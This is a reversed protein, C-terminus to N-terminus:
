KTIGACNSFVRLVFRCRMVDYKTFLVSGLKCCRMTERTAATVAVHRLSQHQHTIFRGERKEERGKLTLAVESWRSWRGTGETILMCDALSGSVRLLSWTVGIIETDRQFNGSAFSEWSGCENGKGLKGAVTGKWLSVVHKSCFPASFLVANALYCSKRRVPPRISARAANGRLVILERPRTWWM